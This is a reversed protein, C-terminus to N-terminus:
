MVGKESFWVGVRDKFVVEDNFMMYGEDLLALYETIKEGGTDCVM